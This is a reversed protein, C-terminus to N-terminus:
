RGRDLTRNTEDIPNAARRALAELYIQHYENYVHDVGLADLNERARMQWHKRWQEDRLLAVIAEALSAPDSPPVMQGAAGHALTEPIGGVATAVIACGAVRAEMIALSSSESHSPLVFVDAQRFYPAPDKVYGIFHAAQTLGLRRSLAELAARDPGEGVLYLHAHPQQERVIHFASLLDHIGKRKYLGSVTVVSPREISPAPPAASARESEGGPEDHLFRPAGIIGNRVVSMREAAIGRRIMAQAVAESVAVVQDGVRMLDSARQFENHVTTILTYPARARAMWALLAGTMMHAHVIDPQFRDAIGRFQRLMAPVRWPHKTQVLTLHQVGYRTLLPEFSGGSSAVAVQHGAQAQLCALDVMVNVIGNGIKQSHNALHLIKM